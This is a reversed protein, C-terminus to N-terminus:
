LTLGDVRFSCCGHLAGDTFAMFVGVDVELGTLETFFQHLAGTASAQPCYVVSYSLNDPIGLFVREEGAAAFTDFAVIVAQSGSLVSFGIGYPM